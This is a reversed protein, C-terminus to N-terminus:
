GRDGGKIFRKIRYETILVRHVVFVAFCYTSVDLGARGSKIGNAIAVGLWVWSIFELLRM